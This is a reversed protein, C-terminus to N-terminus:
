YAAVLARLDNAHHPTGFLITSASNYACNGDGAVEIEIENADM